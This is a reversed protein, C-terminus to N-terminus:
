SVSSVSAIAMDRTLYMSIFGGLTFEAGSELFLLLAFALVLPSRLFRPIEAVPLAYRQKPAPFRLMVTFIGAAGCLATTADLITEVSSWALLAGMVLPLFLAGFGFFVGLRNLAASKQRADGHLDAVLTHDRRKARSRRNGAVGTRAASIRLFDRRRDHAAHLGGATSGVALPLKMEFRDTVLGLVLSAALMGGNMVLFLTGIEATEIRLRELTSM